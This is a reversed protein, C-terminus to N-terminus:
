NALWCRIPPLGFKFQSRGLKKIRKSVNAYESTQGLAKTLVGSMHRLVTRNDSFYSHEMGYYGWANCINGTSTADFYEVNPIQPAQGGVMLGLRSSQGRLRMSLLLAKDNESSYVTIGDALYGIERIKEAFVAAAVDPAAFVVRGLRIRHRSYFINSLDSLARLMMQSGMSHAIIDLKSLEPDTFIARLFGALLMESREASDMDSVYSSFGSGSPWSFLYIRGPYNTSAAIQAARLLSFEFNTNYGHVFVLARSRSSFRERERDVIELRYRSTAAAIQGLLRANTVRYLNVDDQAAKEIGGLWGSQFQTKLAVLATEQRPVSIMACGINLANLKEADNAFWSAANTNTKSIKNMGARNTAFVIRVDRYDKHKAREERCGSIEVAQLRNDDQYRKVIVQAMGSLTQRWSWRKLLDVVTQGATADSLALNKLETAHLDTLGIKEVWKDIAKHRAKRDPNAFGAISKQWYTIQPKIYAPPVFGEIPKDLYTFYVGALRGGTVFAHQVQHRIYPTGDRYKRVSRGHVAFEHSSHRLTRFTSKTAKLFIGNLMEQPPNRQLPWRFTYLRVCCEATDYFSQFSKWSDEKVLFKQPILVHRGDHKKNLVLGFTSKLQNHFSKISAMEGTVSLTKGDQYITRYRRLATALESRSARHQATILLGAARLGQQAGSDHQLVELTPSASKVPNSLATLVALAILALLCLRSYRLPNGILILSM